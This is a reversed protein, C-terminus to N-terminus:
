KNQWWTSSSLLFSYLITLNFLQFSFGEQAETNLMTGSLWLDNQTKQWWIGTTPQPSQNQLMDKSTESTAMLQHNM